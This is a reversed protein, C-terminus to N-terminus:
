GIRGWDKFGKNMHSLYLRLIDNVTNELLPDKKIIATALNRATELYDQDEAADFLRFELGGSQRTGEIDGPGRLKLDEEAIKFGDNTSTMIKIRARGQQSVKQGSMLICYSQEAGRGVRGRLQHLQSLGFRETNEIIMVSANPVNVGVEIVTTAVMIQTKGDVFRRMEMDKDKPKMRGHVVSVKYDPLPFYILLHDYGEQLNALDLKASEDILPYVVYIQRGKRIEAHMFEIVQSRHRETKHLTAIEKRGPPLEDIVSIDLDGYTTMALTRPIPTATMVLIHPPSENGKMWLRSRQMVGFRHQEDIISLGLNNFIVPDELVAHTGILIDIDGEKLFKLINVRKKGKISGSLFAVQVGLGSLSETISIYHQQALIETPAMLVSQFGNDKAMLISLLAVMTKGSGVDGQLLRNMQVGSGLDARIEKIVRKQAGTLTFPLKEKYYRNFYTGIKEFIIGKFKRRRISKNHLMRLQFYFVEEFKIRSRAAQMAKANPPFHIWKLAQLRTILKLKKRIYEPLTEPIDEDRLRTLITYIAQKRAKGEFGIKKIKETSSYVPDLAQANQGKKSSAEIEPHSINYGGGFRTAKGYVIYETDLSLADDIWNIGRFWVLQLIGSSDKISATLRSNKHSKIIKKSILIGKVQVPEESRIDKIPTIITKDVYRFPFRYILDGLTSINMEAILLKAKAPGIGTLSSLSENLFTRM